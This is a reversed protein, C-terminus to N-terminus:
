SQVSYTVWENETRIEFSNLGHAKLAEEVEPRDRDLLGALIIRGGSNLHEKLRGIIPVIVAKIINVVILDFHKDSPIDDITGIEARCIDAVENINVNELCNEVALPDTDYGAIEVAGRRAAYIGLIGSGCGLDLMSKGTLDIKALEMLCGRTSEHRGTGFAMKPEILIEVRGPFSEENWPPKIVISDGVAVPVVSTKYAEIWDLDKIKKQRFEIATRTPNIDTLYKKLGDLYAELDVTDAVYFKITTHSDEDEDELLLGGCINEIIYNAVPDVEDFPVTLAIEHYYSADNEAM